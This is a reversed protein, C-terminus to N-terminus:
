ASGAQSGLQCHGIGDGCSIEMNQVSACGDVSQMLDRSERFGSDLTGSGVGAVVNAESGVPLMAFECCSLM